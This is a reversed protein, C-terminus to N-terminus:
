STQCNPYNSRLPTGSSPFPDGEVIREFFTADAATVNCWYFGLAQFTPYDPIHRWKVQSADYAFIRDDLGDFRRALQNPEPFRHGLPISAVVGVPVSYRTNVIEWPISYVLPSGPSVWRRVIKGSDEYRVIVYTQGLTADRIIGVVVQSSGDRAIWGVGLEFSAGAEDHRTIVLRDGVVETATASNTQGIVRPLTSDDSDDSDTTITGSQIAGPIVRISTEDSYEGVGIRNVAAVRVSYTSEPQLGSLRIPRTQDEEVLMSISFDDGARYYEIAYRLISSGGDGPTSWNVDIADTGVVRLSPAGPKGPVTPDDAIAVGTGVTAILAILGTVAVLVLGVRRLLAITLRLPSSPVGEASKWPRNSAIHKGMM